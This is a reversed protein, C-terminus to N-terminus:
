LACTTSCTSVFLLLFSGQQRVSAWPRGGCVFHPYSSPRNGASLALVGTPPTASMATSAPQSRSCQNCGLIGNAARKHFRAVAEAPFFGRNYTDWGQSYDCHLGAALGNPQPWHAAAHVCVDRVIPVESKM